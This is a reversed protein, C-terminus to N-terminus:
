SNLRHFAAHEQAADRRRETVQGVPLEVRDVPVLFPGIDLRDIVRRGLRVEVGILGVEIVGGPRRGVREQEHDIFGARGRGQTGVLVDGDIERCDFTVAPLNM